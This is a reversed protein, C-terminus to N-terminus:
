LRKAMGLSLVHIVKARLTGGLECIKSAGLSM